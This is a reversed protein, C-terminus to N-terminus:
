GYDSASLACVCCESAVLRSQLLGAQRPHTRVNAALRQKEKM